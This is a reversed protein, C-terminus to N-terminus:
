DLLPLLSAIQENPRKKMDEGMFLRPLKAFSHIIIVRTTAYRSENCYISTFAKLVV